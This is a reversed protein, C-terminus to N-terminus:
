RDETLATIRNQETLNARDAELFAILRAVETLFIEGVYVTTDYPALWLNQRWAWSAQQGSARALRRRKNAEAAGIAARTRLNAIATVEQAPDKRARRAQQLLLNARMAALQRARVGDATLRSDAVRARLNGERTVEARPDKIRWQRYDQRRSVVVPM